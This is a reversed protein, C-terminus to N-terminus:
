LSQRVPGRGNPKGKRNKGGSIRAFGLALVALLVVLNPDADPVAAPKTYYIRTVLCTANAFGLVMSVNYNGGLPVQFVPYTRVGTSATCSTPALSIRTANPYTVNVSVSNGCSYAVGNQFISASVAVGTPQAFIPCAFNIFTNSSAGAPAALLVLVSLAILSGALFSGIGIRQRGM